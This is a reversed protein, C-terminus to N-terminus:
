YRLAYQTPDGGDEETEDGHRPGADPDVITDIERPRDIEEYRRHGQDDAGGVVGYREAAEAQVPNGETGEARDHEVLEELACWVRVIERDETIACFRFGLKAGFRRM